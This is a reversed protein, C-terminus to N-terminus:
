EREARLDGMKPIERVSLRLAAAARIFPSKKLAFSRVSDDAYVYNIPEIDVRDQVAYAIRGVNNRALLTEIEDRTVYVSVPATATM